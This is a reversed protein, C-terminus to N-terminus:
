IYQGNTKGFDSCVVTIHNEGPVILGNLSTDEDRRRSSLDPVHTDNIFVDHPFGPIESIYLDDERPYLELFARSSPDVSFRARYISYGRISRMTQELAELRYPSTPLRDFGVVRSVGAEVVPAVAPMERPAIRFVKFRPANEAVPEPGMADAVIKDVAVFDPILLLTETQGADIEAAVHSQESRVSRVLRANTILPFEGRETRVVVSREALATPAIFVTLTTGREGDAQLRFSGLRESHRYSVVLSFDAPNCRSDAIDGSMTPAAPFRFCAEGSVGPEASLVIAEERGFLTHFAIQSTAYRMVGTQVPVNLSLIRSEGVQGYGSLNVSALQPVEINQGNEPDKYTFQLPTVSYNNAHVFLFGLPGNRRMLVTAPKVRSLDTKDLTSRALVPGNQELWTGFARLTYYKDRLEGDEAIPCSYDYSTEFDRPACKRSAIRGTEGPWAFIICRAALCSWMEAM